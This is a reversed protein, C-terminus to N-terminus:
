SLEDASLSPPVENFTLFDRHHARAAGYVACLVVTDVHRDRLLESAHPGRLLGCVVRRIQEELAEWSELSMLPAALDVTMVDVSKARRLHYCMEHVRKLAFLLM